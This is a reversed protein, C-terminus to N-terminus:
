PGVPGVFAADGFVGISTGTVDLCNRHQPSGDPVKIEKGDVVVSLNYDDARCIRYAKVVEGFYILDGSGSIQDIRRCGTECYPSAFDSSAFASLATFGLLAAALYAHAKM